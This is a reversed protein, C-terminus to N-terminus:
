SAIGVVLPLPLFPLWAEREKGVSRGCCSQWRELVSVADRGGGKRLVCRLTMRCPLCSEEEGGLAGEVSNRALVGWFVGLVSLAGQGNRGCCFEVIDASSMDPVSPV